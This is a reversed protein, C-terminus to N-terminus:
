KAKLWKKAKLLYIIAISTAMLFIIATATPHNVGWKTPYSITDWLFIFISLILVPIVIKNQPYPVMRYILFWVLWGAGSTDAFLYYVMGWWYGDVDFVAQTAFVIIPIIYLSIAVQLLKM